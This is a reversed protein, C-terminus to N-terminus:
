WLFPIVAKRGRPYDPFRKRYWAHHNRARPALNAFTWLAFSLAPLSWAALAFGTWEMIEGFHNPCSIREFLGGRPIQYGHGNTRLAILREDARHNIGMGMVFLLLGAVLAADPVPRDAPALHGLWCGNLVGNVLNFFVGSGVIAVPMRKGRTRLRFPFILTRNAYHGTWLAVLVWTLLGKDRPGLVVLLPFLLLAPLEMWFWGWRNAMTPGWGATTHRGYPARVKLLVPLLIVALAGWGLTLLDFTSM